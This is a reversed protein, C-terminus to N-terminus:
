MGGSNSTIPHSAPRSVGASSRRGPFNEYHATAGCSTVIGRTSARLSWDEHLPRQRLACIPKRVARALRGIAMSAGWAAPAVCIRRRGRYM